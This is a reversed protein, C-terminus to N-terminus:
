NRPKLMNGKVPSLNEHESGRICILSPVFEEARQSLKSSMFHTLAFM